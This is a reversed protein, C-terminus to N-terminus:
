RCKFIAPRGALPMRRLGTSLASKGRIRSAIPGPSKARIRRSARAPRGLQQAGAYEHGM